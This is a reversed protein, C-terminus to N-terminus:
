DKFKMEKALDNKSKQVGLSKSVAKFGSLSLVFPFHGGETL